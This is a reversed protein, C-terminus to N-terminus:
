VILFKALVYDQSCFINLVLFTPVEVVSLLLVKQQRVFAAHAVPFFDFLFLLTHESKLVLLFKLSRHLPLLFDQLLAILMSRVQEVLPILKPLPAFLQTLEVM